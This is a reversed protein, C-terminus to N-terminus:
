RTVTTPSLPSSGGFSPRCRLRHEDMLAAVAGAFNAEFMSDYFLNEINRCNMDLLLLTAGGTLPQSQANNHFAAAQFQVSDRPARYMYTQLPSDLGAAREGFVDFSTDFLMGSVPDGAFKVSQGVFRWGVDIDVQATILQFFMQQRNFTFNPQIANGQRPTLNTAVNCAYTHGCDPNDGYLTVAANPKANRHAIIQSVIAAYYKHLTVHTANAIEAMRQLCQTTLVANTSAACQQALIAIEAGFDNGSGFCDAGKFVDQARDLLALVNEAGAGPVMGRNPLMM